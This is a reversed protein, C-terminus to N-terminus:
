ILEIYEMCLGGIQKAPQGSEALKAGHVWVLLRFAYLRHAIYRSQTLYAPTRTQRAPHSHSATPLRYIGRACGNRPWRRVGGDVDYPGTAAAYRVINKTWAYLLALLYTHGLADLLAEAHPNKPTFTELTSQNDPSLSQRTIVQLAALFYDSRWTAVGSSAPQGCVTTSTNRPHVVTVVLAKNM